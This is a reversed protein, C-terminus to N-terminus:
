PAWWRSGFSSSSSPRFTMTEALSTKRTAADSAELRQLAFCLLFPFRFSPSRRALINSLLAFTGPGGGLHASSAHRFPLARFLRRLPRHWPSTRGTEPAARGNYHLSVLVM